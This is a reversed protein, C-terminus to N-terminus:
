QSFYSWNQFSCSTRIVDIFHIESIRTVVSESHMLILYLASSSPTTTIFWFDPSNPDYERGLSDNFPNSWSRSGWAWAWLFECVTSSRLSDRMASEEIMFALCHAFDLEFQFSRTNRTASPSVPEVSCILLHMPTKSFLKSPQCSTKILQCFVSTVVSKIIQGVNLMILITIKCFCAQSANFHTSLM